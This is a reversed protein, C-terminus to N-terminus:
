FCFGFHKLFTTKNKIKSVYNERLYGFTPIQSFIINKSVRRILYYISILHILTEIMPHLILFFIEFLCAFKDFMTEMEFHRNKYFAILSACITVEYLLFSLVYCSIRSFRNKYQIMTFTM